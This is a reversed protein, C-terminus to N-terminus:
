LSFFCLNDDQLSLVVFLTTKVVDLLLNNNSPSKM